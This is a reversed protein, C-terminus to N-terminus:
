GSGQGFNGDGRNSNGDERTGPGGLTLTPLTGYEVLEFGSYRKKETGTQDRGPSTDNRDTDLTKM